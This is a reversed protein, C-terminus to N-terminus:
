STLTFGRLMIEFRLMWRVSLDYSVIIASGHLYPM